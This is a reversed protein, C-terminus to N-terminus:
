RAGTQHASRVNTGPEGNCSKEEFKPEGSPEIGSRSLNSPYVQRVGCKEVHVTM